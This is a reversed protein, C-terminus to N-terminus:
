HLRQRAQRCKPCTCGSCGGGGSRIVQTDDVIETGKTGVVWIRERPLGSIDLLEQFVERSESVVSTVGNAHLLIDGEGCYSNCLVATLEMALSPTFLGEVRVHLVNDTEHEAPQTGEM